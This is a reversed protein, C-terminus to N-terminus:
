RKFGFQLGEGSRLDAFAGTEGILHLAKVGKWNYNRQKAVKMWADPQDAPKEGNEDEPRDITIVNFALDSIESAGKISYRTTKEFGSPKKNHAVLHVHTGSEKAIILFQDITNKQANYDDTNKVVRMLSDILFHKTGLKDAAYRMVAFLKPAECRGVQDYIWIKGKAWAMFETVHRPTIEAKMHWQRIMRMLTSKPEMEFSAIVCPEGQDACALMVQSTIFSKRSENYGGWVTLERPRLRFLSMSPWPLYTGRVEDRVDLLDDIIEQTWIEPAKLKVRGESEIMYSAFDEDQIMLGDM